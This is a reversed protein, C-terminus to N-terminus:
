SPAAVTPDARRARVWRALERLAVDPGVQPDYGFADAAKTCDAVTRQQDGRRPPGHQIKPDVGLEDALIAIADLLAVETSGGLNYTEGPVADHMAAITGAVCDDVYTNTRSQRGDGFVVIPRSDLMAEAFIRYAMDPRQRPGYISFYRLIVAELEADECYAWVLHEAALKTVGYPSVPRLPQDEAGIANRGYVSSTSAQVLRRVGATRAADLLRGVALLNCDQYARLESWSRALGPRAAENVVVEVGELVPEIQGDRLDLEVLTCSPHAAAARLNAEKAARDYYPEYADIAVVEHGLALLEETLRSGIFGAAGTVAVRM